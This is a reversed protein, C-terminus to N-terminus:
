SKKPIVCQKTEGNVPISVTVKGGDFSAGVASSSESSSQLNVATPSSSSGVAEGTKVTVTASKADVSAGTPSSHAPWSGKVTMSQIEGGTESKSYEITCPASDSSGKSKGAPILSDILMAVAVNQAMAPEPSGQNQIAKSMVTTAAHSTSFLCMALTTKFVVKM